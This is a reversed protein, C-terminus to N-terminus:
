SHCLTIFILAKISITNKAKCRCSFEKAIENEDCFIDFRRAYLVTQDSPYSSLGANTFKFFRYQGIKKFKFLAENNSKLCDDDNHVDQEIWDVGNNSTTM